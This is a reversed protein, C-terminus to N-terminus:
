KKPKVAKDASPKKPSENPVLAELLGDIRYGSLKEAKKLSDIISLIFKARKLVSAPADNGMTGFAAASEPLLFRPAWFLVEEFAEKNFWTVGDFRNIGFLQRFDETDYNELIMAACHKRVTEDSIIKGNVIEELGTDAFKKVPEDTEEAVGLSTRSLIAKAIEMIRGAKYSGIGKTEWIIEIKKFLQWHEALLVAEAGSSGGLISRLLSLLGYGILPLLGQEPLGNVPVIEKKSLEPLSLARSVFSEFDKWIFESDIQAIKRNGNFSDFAEYGDKVGAIYKKAAHVFALVPERFSEIFQTNKENASMEADVSDDEVVPLEM